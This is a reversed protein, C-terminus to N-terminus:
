RLVRRGHNPHSTTRWYPNQSGREGARRPQCLSIFLIGGDIGFYGFVEVDGFRELTSSLKVEDM